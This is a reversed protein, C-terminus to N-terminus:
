PGPPRPGCAAGDLADWLTRAGDDSRVLIPLEYFVDLAAPPGTIEWVVRDGRRDVTFRIDDCCRTELEALRRSEAETATGALLTWAVGGAIRARGVFADAFLARFDATRQARDAPALRCVGDMGGSHAPRSPLPTM